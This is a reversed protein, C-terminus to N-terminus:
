PIDLTEMKGLAFCGAAAGERWSNDSSLGRLPAVSSRRGHHAIWAELVSKQAELRNHSYHRMMQESVHGAIHRVTEPSAGNELMVTIAM